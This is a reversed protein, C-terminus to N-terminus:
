VEVTHISPFPKSKAFWPSGASIVLASLEPELNGSIRAIM